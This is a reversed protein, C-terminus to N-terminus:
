QPSETTWVTTVNPADRFWINSVSWLFGFTDLGTGSIGTNYESTFGMDMLAVASITCGANPLSAM